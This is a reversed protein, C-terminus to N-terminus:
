FYEILHKTNDPTMEFIEESKSILKPPVKTNAILYHSTPCMDTPYPAWYTYGDCHSITMILNDEVTSSITYDLEHYELEYILQHVLEHIFSDHAEIDFTPEKVKITQQKLLAFHMEELM